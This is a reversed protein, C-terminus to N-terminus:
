ACEQKLGTSVAEPEEPQLHPFVKHRSGYETDSLVVQRAQRTKRNVVLPGLLNATMRVPDQPYTLIVAIEADGPNELGICALEERSVEIHYDSVIVRADCVVFALQPVELSQMWRFIGLGEPRYEAYETLGYFGLLGGVVTLRDTEDVEIEGFRTTEVKM